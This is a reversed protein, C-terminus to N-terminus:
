WVLMLIAMQAEVWDKLIRWAVRMAQEHIVPNSGYSRRRPFQKHLIVEVAMINVPMKFPTEGYPTQVVFNLYEIEGNNGYGFMVAKAGHKRLIEQIENATKYAPITTSYNLLPM